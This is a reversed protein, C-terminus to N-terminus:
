SFFESEMSDFHLLLVEPQKESLKKLGPNCIIVLSWHGDM